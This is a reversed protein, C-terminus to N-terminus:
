QGRPVPEPQSHGGAHRGGGATGPRRVEAIRLRERGRSTSPMTVFGVALMGMERAARAVVPAAGTGTGGVWAPPPHLGHAIRRSARHHEGSGRRAAKGIDPRSGAGLVRPSLLASSSEATQAPTNLPRPMTNAVIFEVGSLGNVIMNNVANGGAGGIGFVTIRPKISHTEPVGLQIVMAVEETDAFRTASRDRAGSRFRCHHQHKGAGISQMVVGTSASALATSPGGGSTGTASNVADWRAEGRRMGCCVPVPRSPPDRSEDTWVRSGSPIDRVSRAASTTPWWNAWARPIPIRRRHAGSPTRSTPLGGARWSPEQADPAHARRPPSHHCDAGAHSVVRVVGDREGILPIEITEHSDSESASLAAMFLRSGRPTEAPTSLAEAIDSTIHQGGMPISEVHVCEGEMFMALDTTGCRFRHRNCGDGDRGGGPLGTGRRLGLRRTRRHRSPLPRHLNRSQGRARTGVLCPAGQRRSAGRGHGQPRPHWPQWRHCLRGSHM